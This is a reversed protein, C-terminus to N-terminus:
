IHILSLWIPAPYRSFHINTPTADYQRLDNGQIQKTMLHDNNNSCHHCTIIILNVIDNIMTMNIKIM